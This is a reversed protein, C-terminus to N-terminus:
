RQGAETKRAASREPTTLTAYIVTAVIVAVTFALVTLWATDAAPLALAIM